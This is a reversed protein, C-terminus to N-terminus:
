TARIKSHSEVSPLISAYISQTFLNLLIYCTCLKHVYSKALQVVKTEMHMDELLWVHKIICFYVTDLILHAIFYAVKVM